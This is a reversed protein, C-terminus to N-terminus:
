IKIDRKKNKKFYLCLISQKTYGIRNEESRNQQFINRLKTQTIIVKSLEKNFFHMHNVRAHKKKLPAHNNLADLNIHSFRQLGDNKDILNKKSM